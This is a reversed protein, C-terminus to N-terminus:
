THSSNLRTSKRDLMLVPLFAAVACLASIGGSGLKGLLLDLGRVRTLMLLGLTGDRREQGIADATILCAGACVLFLAAVIANFVQQATEAPDAFGMADSSILPPIAVLVGALAVGARTWYTLKRRSRRRLERQIVPLLIM